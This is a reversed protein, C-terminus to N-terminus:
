KDHNEKTKSREWKPIRLKLHIRTGGGEPRDVTVKGGLLRARRKLSSPIWDDSGDLGRGNDRVTLTVSRQDAKLVTSFETAEAHRSINVLCEKYFLYLDVRTRAKLRRLYEEGEVVFDHELKAMIRRAARRMDETLDTYAETASLMDTCHRVATGSLETVARIRRHITSLEEPEEKSGEALDSLLGITHINAGLEDHLDAALRERIRSLQRMRVIRDFLITVVIGGALLAVLWAMRNLKSKQRAYDLELEEIVLPRETELDHRYALENMWRRTPLIEGYLNLGDTLGEVPRKLGLSELNCHVPKGMAVNRGGSFLEIDAFAIVAGSVDHESGMFPEVAVLRVYRCSTEPFRRMIIPGVDYISEKWYEVLPVADSFDAQKAGEVILRPPLGFDAPHTQPVTDSLDTVHLHIRNLPYEQELDITVTPLEGSGFESVFALSQEGQAADMLYPVFGDVLFRQHRGVSKRLEPTSATVPRQLAINEEGSFVFIESLQLLYMGDWARPSLTTAELRLWSASVEECRIVVPAIRPLLRDSEDFSALVEGEAGEETGAVIRFELPFGDARFGTKTDRWIAPVVVVKDVSQVEGLDIEIWEPTDPELHPRSRYGVNGMGGRLSYSALQELESDIDELRQGLENLSLASVPADAEVPAAVLLLIGALLTILRMM